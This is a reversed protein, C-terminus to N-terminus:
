SKPWSGDAIAVVRNLDMEVTALAINLYEDKAYKKMKLIADLRERTEQIEKLMAPAAAILAANARETKAPSYSADCIYRFVGRPKGATVMHLNDKDEFGWPGPTHKM